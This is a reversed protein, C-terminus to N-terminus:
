DIIEKLLDDVINRADDSLKRNSHSKAVISILENMTAQILPHIMNTSCFPIKNLDKILYMEYYEYPSGECILVIPRIEISINDDYKAVFPSGNSRTEYPHKFPGGDQFTVGVRFALNSTDLKWEMVGHATKSKVQRLFSLIRRDDAGLVSIDILILTDLSIKFLGSAKVILDIGPLNEPKKALRSFYGTSVGLEKELDGIKMGRSNRLTEINNLFTTNKFNM